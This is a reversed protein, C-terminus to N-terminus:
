ARASTPMPTPSITIQDPQHRLWQRFVGITALIGTAVLVLMLVAGM